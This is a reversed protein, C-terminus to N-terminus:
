SGVELVVPPVFPQGQGNVVQHFEVTSSTPGPIVVVKGLALAKYLREQNKLLALEIQEEQTLDNGGPAPVPVPIPVPVPPAPVYGDAVVNLDMNAGCLQVSGQYQWITAETWGGYPRPLTLSSPRAQYAAHWLPLQSYADTAVNPNWWWEGTYIGTPFDGLGEVAQDIKDLIQNSTFPAIAEECDLWHRGVPYGDGLNVRAAMYSPIDRSWILFSYLDLTMGGRHCIELQHRTLDPWQTGIIAHNFGQRMWCQVLQDTIVGGPAGFGPVNTTYNSLDLAGIM